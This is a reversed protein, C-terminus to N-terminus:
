VKLQLLETELRSTDNKMDKNAEKQCCKSITPNAVTVIHLPLPSPPTLALM